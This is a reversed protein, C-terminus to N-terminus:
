WPRFYVDMKDEGLGVFNIRRDLGVRTSELASSLWALDTPLAYGERAWRAVARLVAADDAFAQPCFLNVKISVPEDARIRMAVDLEVKASGCPARWCPEAQALSWTRRQRSTGWRELLPDLMSPDSTHTVFYVKVDQLGRRDADLGLIAPAAAPLHQFMESLSALGETLGPVFNGAVFLWQVPSWRGSAWPNFYAKLSPPGSRKQQLGLWAMFNGRLSTQGDMLSDLIAEMLPLSEGCGLGHAFAAMRQRLAINGAQTNPAPQVLFRVAAPGEVGLTVSLELPSGDPGIGSDFPPRSTVPTGLCAEGAVALHRMLDARALETEPAALATLCREVAQLYVLDAM